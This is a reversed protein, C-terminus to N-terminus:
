YEIIVVGNSANAVTTPSGFSNYISAGAGWSGGAPTFGAGWINASVGNGGNVATAPASGAPINIDGGSGTGGSVYQSNGGQGGTGTVTTAGYVASSSGGVNGAGGSTTGGTGITITISGGSLTLYKIASGGAAGSCGYSPGGGGGAGTVTIKCRTVGVPVSWTTSSTYAEITSFGGSAAVVAAGSAKIYSVCYVTTGDSEYIARDGAATTINAAGPLNNTTSNHTLTLIGDFIVTRPGRTLTVATIATTGTIHVRNGTATDLNITSASAIATGSAWEQAATFTNAGLIAATGVVGAAPLGTANTLTGSSPTGLAPTVLTPSTAFVLSGTGTEDTVAALLNASSPTGLFTAVGTGLATLGTGGNAVPLTGTVGTTLPLGTANTLTGSSPTGLAPTVLTPSTAFVLSGTGTEDTVAALLNASSPTGLFTAVGTGFSTIGTGGNAVPLTGTVGTTLPLGTANTLTASVPTGLAANIELKDTNLNTLNTDMETNTLPTGKAARTTITSM